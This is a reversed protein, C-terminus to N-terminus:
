QGDISEVSVDDIWVTKGPKPEQIRVFLTLVRAEARVPVEASFEKWESGADLPILVNKGGCWGLVKSGDRELLNIEAQGAQIGEARAFLRVRVRKPHDASLNIGTFVFRGTKGESQVQFRLASRGSHPNEADLKVLSPAADDKAPMERWSAHADAAEFDFNAILSSGIPKTAQALVGASLAAVAVASKILAKVSM